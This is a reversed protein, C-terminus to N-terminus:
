SGPAPALFRALGFLGLLPEWDAATRGCFTIAAHACAAVASLADGLASGSPEPYPADHGATCAGSSSWRTRACRTRARRPPPAALRARHRGPRGPGRRDARDRHRAASISSGGRRHRRRRGRAPVGDLVPAPHADGPVRRVPGPPPEAAGQRRQAAPDGTGARPGVAAAARGRVVPLGARRVGPGRIRCRRVACLLM